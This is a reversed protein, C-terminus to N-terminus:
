KKVLADSLLHAKTALNFAREFDGDTTAKRSQTVYARIQTLMEEEGSSLNGKLGNIKKETEDLLQATTQKQRMLQTSNVDAAIAVDPTPEPPHAMAETENAAASAESNAANQTAPSTAKKRHRKAHRPEPEQKQETTEQPPPSPLPLETTEAIEGPLPMAIPEAPAQAQTPLQPKRKACGTALLLTVLVLFVSQRGRNM